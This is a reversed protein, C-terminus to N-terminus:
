NIALFSVLAVIGAGLACIGITLFWIYADCSRENFYEVFDKM